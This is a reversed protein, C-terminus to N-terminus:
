VSKEKLLIILVSVVYIGANAIAEQLEPSVVAGTAIVVSFLGIWTTKERLRDLVWKGFNAFDM